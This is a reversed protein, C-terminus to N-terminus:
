ADEEAAKKVAWEDNRLMVEEMDWWMVERDAKEEM